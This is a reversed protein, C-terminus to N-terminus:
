ASRGASILREVLAATNEAGDLAIGLDGSRRGAALARAMAAALATPNLGAEPLM